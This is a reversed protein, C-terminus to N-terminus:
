EEEGIAEDIRQLLGNLLDITEKSRLKEEANKIDKISKDLMILIETWRGLYERAEALLDRSERHARLLEATASHSLKEFRAFMGEIDKFREPPM